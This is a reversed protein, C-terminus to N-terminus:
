SGDVVDCYREYVVNDLYHASNGGIECSAFVLPLQEQVDVKDLVKELDLVFLVRVLLVVDAVGVRDLISDAQSSFASACLSGCCTRCALKEGHDKM